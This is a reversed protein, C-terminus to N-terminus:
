LVEDHFQHTQMKKDEGSWTEWTGDIKDSFQFSTWLVRWIAIYLPKLHWDFLALEFPVYYHKISCKLSLRAGPQAATFESARDSSAPAGGTHRDTWMVAESSGNFSLFGGWVVRTGWVCLPPCHWYRSSLWLRLTLEVAVPKCASM